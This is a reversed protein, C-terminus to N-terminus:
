YGCYGFGACFAAAGAKAAVGAGAAVAGVMFASIGPLKMATKQNNAM